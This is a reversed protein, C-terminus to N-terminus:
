NLYKQFRSIVLRYLVEMTYILITFWLYNALWGVWVDWVSQCVASVDHDEELFGVTDIALVNEESM